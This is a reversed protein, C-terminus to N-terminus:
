QNDKKVLACAHSNIQNGWKKFFGGLNYIHLKFPIGLIRSNPRPRAIAQLRTRIPAKKKNGLTDSEVKVTAGTYLADNAPVNKTVNCASAMLLAFMVFVYSVRRVM